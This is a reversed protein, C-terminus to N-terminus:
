RNGRMDEVLSDVMMRSREFTPVRLYVRIANAIGQSLGGCEDLTVFHTSLWSSEFPSRMEEFEKVALKLLADIRESM